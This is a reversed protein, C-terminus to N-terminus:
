QGGGAENGQRPQIIMEVRGSGEGDRPGGEATVVRKATDYLIRNGRFLNSGQEIVAERELTLLNERAAYIITLAKADTSAQEGVAPQQYRAPSGFAEIRTLGESDRYLLVKDATLRTENQTVIVDGTYTAVGQGDDLRATDANVTIPADSDLNFAGAGLSAGLCLLLVAVRSIM